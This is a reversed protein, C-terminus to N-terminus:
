AAMVQICVCSCIHACTRWSMRVYVCECVDDIRGSMVVAFCLRGHLCAFDLAYVCVCVCTCMCVRICACVFVCSSLFVRVCVHVCVCVCACVAGSRFREAYVGTYNRVDYLRKFAAPMDTNSDSV